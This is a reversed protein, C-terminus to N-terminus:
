NTRTSSEKFGSFIATEWHTLSLIWHKWQQLRSYMRLLNSAIDVIFFIKRRIRVHQGLKFKPKKIANCKQLSVLFSKDSKKVQNPVLKTVLNIRSNIIDFFAQLQEHYVETNNEHLYKFILAKISRINREAFVSKTESCTSYLHIGSQQCFNAFERAFEQGRDVWNKEANPSVLRSGGSFRPQLVPPSRKNGEIVDNLAWRCAAATKRKPPVVWVFRNLTDM